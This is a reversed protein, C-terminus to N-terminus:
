PWLLLLQFPCIVEALHWQVKPWGHSRMHFKYTVCMHSMRFGGQWAQAFQTNVFSHSYGADDVVTACFGTLFNFFIAGMVEIDASESRCPNHIKGMIKGM